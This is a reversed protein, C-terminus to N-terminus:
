QFDQGTMVAQRERLAQHFDFAFARAEFADMPPLAFTKMMAPLVLCLAEHADRDRCQAAEHALYRIADEATMNM